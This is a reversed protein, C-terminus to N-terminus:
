DAQVTAFLLSMAGDTAQITVTPEGGAHKALVAAIDSYDANAAENSVITLEARSGLSRADMRLGGSLNRDAMHAAIMSLCTAILTVAQSRPTSVVISDDIDPLFVGGVAEVNQRALERGSVAITSLSTSAENTVAHEMATLGDSADGISVAVEAFADQCSALAREASKLAHVIDETATSGTTSAHLALRLSPGAELAARDASDIADQIPLLCNRLGALGPLMTQSLLESHLHRRKESLENLRRNALVALEKLMKREKDSFSRPKTDIVCLSGVVADGVALPMGLYARIGYRKVLYRPVRGDQEADTVEFPEGAEVVFQCFSVDRDTGRAAALESPLGYHTKFFQIHELVLNVLAIPASLEKAAERVISTLEHDDIESLLSRNMAAPIEYDPGLVDIRDM